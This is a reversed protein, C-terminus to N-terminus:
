LLSMLNLESKYEWIGSVSSDIIRAEHYKWNSVLTSFSITAAAKGAGGIMTLDIGGSIRGFVQHINLLAQAQETENLGMFRNRGAELISAPINNRKAFITTKMKQLYLDYLRENSEHDVKDYVPDFVFAKSKKSNEVLRELHKIYTEIERSGSFPMFPALILCKGGSSTGAICARFGDLELMTNIKLIRMGLPLEISDVKKGRIEYIRKAAYEKIAEESSLIKDGEILQAPVVMVDTKKGTKFKALIFFSVAPKQYGGYKESPLNKKRGILGEAAKKPQRDFLGGHRCFSYCTMHADNLACTKKARELMDTGDWVTEKGCIVPHTFLTRPKVSYEDHVSFWRSSFKMDYVNGTVINLYADKAHHLDNFTRSKVLDFEHRFDSTLRAKTYVIKTDPYLEKLLEAVVKVSQSTQTLQRAIFNLKEEDTFPTSRTLRRYKEDNIMGINHLLAWFDRQSHRIEAAIPYNNTKQGNIESKVLVRNNLISDDTVYSQPYIHDINYAASKIQEIPIPEGTYMCRGLQMYYLFLVDARLRNDAMDGMTELQQRLIRVDENRCKDYLALIQDKRSVTRKNKQEESVGRTVEVFIKEPPCGEAKVVERVIKLTQIIPRKVANSVWMDELREDLTMPHTMYWDQQAQKIDDAFSYRESMLEMFNENTDWMAQMITLVEGTSRDTGEFGTLLKASLKGFDKYNLRCVYDLDAANLGPYEKSIYKKLRAKDETYTIKRIIDEVQEETLVKNDMLRKFDQWPKLDSKIQEDIGSLTQEKTMYGNATMFDKLQKVSVKRRNMFLASYIHQKMAPTILTGDVKINNIENLVTFKHYLLSEKPLVFQDPLYTCRNLMQDIFSRECADLDVMMDFNWPYIRGSRRSIWANNDSTNKLPGVFYPVRFEFVSMLKERISLGDADKENLFPLYASAKDLITKLEIWYLQYPVVRNDGNKQKPLFSYTDLRAMMDDYFARDEDQPVISKMKKKLADSFVIKDAKKDPLPQNKKTTHYVYAQYNDERCRRFLENYYEPIYKKVFAKLGSLDAKHQEYVKVKAESIYKEGDIVSDLLSWDYIAKLRFILEADDGLQATLSLFDEEKMGLSVSGADDYGQDPYLDKVKVSAGCLLKILAEVGFSGVMLKKIGAGNFLLGSLAKYKATITIKRQLIDAAKDLQSEDWPIVIEPGQLCIFDTLSKYVTGFDTLEGVNDKSIDNLFHGRHAVLWACALYVLRVDHPKDSSMLDSILHHITPYEQHYEKDTYGDDNFLCYPDQADERWLASEQIRIYFKPDVKRIEDAFLEQVLSVRWKRRGLSRRSTRLARREDNLQAEDFLTVGWVHKGKYRLLSYDKSAAAYGVSDTGIDLGLYYSKKEM